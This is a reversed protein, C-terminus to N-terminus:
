VRGYLEKEIVSAALGRAVNEDSKFTDLPWRDPVKESNQIVRYSEEWTLGKQSLQNSWINTFAAEEARNSIATDLSIHKQRASRRAAKELEDKDYM